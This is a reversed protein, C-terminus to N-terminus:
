LSSGIGNFSLINGTQVEPNFVKDLCNTSGKIDLGAKRMYIMMTEMDNWGGMKMVVAPAVGKALLLTAWTARLDHFRIPPLNLGILFKRLHRAQEGKKWANLRPLLFECEPNQVLLDKIIPLLPKPIEVIRDNGSKTCKFGDKSNWSHNILVTRDDINVRDKKLAFLEGTRLGLFAACAWHPYWENNLDRAQTLLINLQQETLVPMIKDSTKIKLKPTPNRLVYGASEAYNFVSRICKLIYIKHGSTNKDMNNIIKFVDNATIENVPRGYWAKTYKLICVQESYITKQTYGTLTMQRIHEEVCARWTPHKVEAIKRHVAEMLLSQARIAEAKTQLNRKTYSIPNEGKSPRKSYSATWTGSTVDYRIGMQEGKM